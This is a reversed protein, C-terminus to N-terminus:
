KVPMGENKSCNNSYSLTNIASFEVSYVVFGNPPEFYMSYFLHLLKISRALGMGGINIPVTLLIKQLVPILM